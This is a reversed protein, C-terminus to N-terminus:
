PMSCGVSWQIYGAATCVLTCMADVLLTALVMLLGDCCFGGVKSWFATHESPQLCSVLCAQVPTLEYLSQFGYAHTGIHEIYTM